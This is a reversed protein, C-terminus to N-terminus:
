WLKKMILGGKMLARGGKRTRKKNCDHCLQYGAATTALHMWAALAAFRGCRFAVMGAGIRCPREAVGSCPLTLTFLNLFTVQMQTLKAQAIALHGASGQFDMVDYRDVCVISKPQVIVVQNCKAAATVCQNFPSTFQYRGQAAERHLGGTLNQRFIPFLGM